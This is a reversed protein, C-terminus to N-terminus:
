LVLSFLRLDFFSAVFTDNTTAQMSASPPVFSCVLCTHHNKHMNGLTQFTNSCNLARYWICYAFSSSHTRQNWVFDWESVDVFTLSTFTDSSSPYRDWWLVIKVLLVWSSVTPICWRIHLHHVFQKSHFVTHTFGDSLTWSLLHECHRSGVNSSKVEDQLEQIQVVVAHWNWWMPWM